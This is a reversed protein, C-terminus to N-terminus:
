GALIDDVGTFAGKGREEWYGDKGGKLKWVEEGEDGGDVKAFWRPRHIVGRDELEKRRMRQKEELRAKWSEADDLDGREAARQDPRLRCDTPPLKGKELETIENLSAAFTTLGYRQSADEVLEGVRWIEAGVAKGAELIRLSNTWTGTLGVGTHVGDPGYSEVQVDESRGGFMGKQKFEITAKAGTSENTVTMTGVPEMYKEGMVVNRLFV